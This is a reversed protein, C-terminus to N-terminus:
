YDNDHYFETVTNGYFRDSVIDGVLGLVTITVAIAIITM